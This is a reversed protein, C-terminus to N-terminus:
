TLDGSAVWEDTALKTISFTAYQARTTLTSSTRITVGSGAVLTVQGAGYQMGSIVTSTPFAVSSNPPVTLNVASASNLKVFGGADTLVLTYSVTQTTVPTTSFRSDNGAAYTGSATGAVPIQGFAAADAAATGNALNTIKQSSLSVSATPNSVQDLRPMAHVHGSDAAKGIAGAAQTGLPAIDASTSDLTLGAAQTTWKVGPAQTSDAALVQGDTGVALSSYAGSATGALVSGKATYDTKHVVAADAAKASLDTTLNTVKSESIGSVDADVISLAALKSKAIAASASINADTITTAAIKAGTVAGNSIAPAAASTGTGGLDGALQVIGKTSSTADPVSGSGTVTAPEWAGTTANYSLVQGDAPPGSDVAKGQLGTVSPAGATGGLDGTLQVKGKAAATADPVSTTKLTGDADLSVSLYDNLVGGWVGDDAGPAPLRAM